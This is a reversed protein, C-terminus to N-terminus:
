TKDCTILQNDFNGSEYYNGFKKIVENMERINDYTWKCPDCGNNIAAVEAPMGFADWGLYSRVDYGNLMLYRNYVDQAVFNRFHGTHIRGSPYPFMSISYYFGKKKHSNIM